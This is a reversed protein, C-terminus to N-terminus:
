NSFILFIALFFVSIYVIKTAISEWLSIIHKTWLHWGFYMWFFFPIIYQFDILGAHWIPYFSWLSIALGTFRWLAKYQLTKMWIWRTYLIFYLPWAAGPIFWSLISLLFQGFYVFYERFKTVHVEHNKLNRRFYTIFLFTLFVVWTVRKLVSNPTLTMLTWGIFWGLFTALVSGTLYNWSVHWSKLFNRMGAISWAFLGIQYTAKTTQPPIWLVM